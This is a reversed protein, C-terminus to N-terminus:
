PCDARHIRGADTKAFVVQGSTCTIFVGGITIVAMSGYQRKITSAAEAVTGDANIIMMDPASEGSSFAYSVTGDGSVSLKSAESSALPTVSSEGIITGNAIGVIKTVAGVAAATMFMEIDGKGASLMKIVDYANEGVMAWHALAKDVEATDSHAALAVSVDSSGHKAKITFLKGVEKSTLDSPSLGDAIIQGGGGGDEGALEAWKEATLPNNKDPKGHFHEGKLSNPHFRIDACCEGDGAANNDGGQGLWKTGWKGTPFVNYMGSNEGKTNGGYRDSYAQSAKFRLKATAVVHEDDSLDIVEIQNPVHKVHRIRVAASVDDYERAAAAEDSDWKLKSNKLHQKFTYYAHFYKAETLDADKPPKKKVAFNVDADPSESCGVALVMGMFWIVAKM